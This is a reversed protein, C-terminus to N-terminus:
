NPPPLLERKGEGQVVSANNKIIDDNNKIIDDNIRM